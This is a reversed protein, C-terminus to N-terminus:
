MVVKTAQGDVKVILVGAPLSHFDGRNMDLADLLRGDVAYIEAKVDTLAQIGHNTIKIKRTTSTDQIEDVGSFDSEQIGWFNKWYPANEYASKSGIPVNLTASLYVGTPFDCELVPPEALKCNIVKIKELKTPDLTPSLSYTKYINNKIYRDNGYLKYDSWTKIIPEPAAFPNYPVEGITLTELTHNTVYLSNIYSEKNVRYSVIMGDPAVTGEIDEIEEPALERNLSVETLNNICFPSLYICAWTYPNAEAEEESPYDGGKTITMADEVSSQFYLPTEGAEFELKSLNKCEDFVKEGILEVSGPITFSTLASCGMFAGTEITRLSSPISISALKSCDTLAYKGITEVGEQIVFTEISCDEFAYDPIRKINGPFILQKIPNYAIFARGLYEVNTPIEFSTLGCDRFAYKGIARVTNPLAINEIKRHAFAETGISDLKEPLKISLKKSSGNFAHYAIITINTASLDCEEIGEGIYPPFYTINKGISVSPCGGWADDFGSIDRNLVIKSFYRREFSGPHSVTTYEGKLFGEGESFTLKTQVAKQKDSIAFAGYGLSTVSGPITIEILSECGYFAYDDIIKVSKLELKEIMDCGNFAQKGITDTSVIVSTIERNSSFANDNVKVVKLERGNLNITSPITLTKMEEKAGSVACTMDPLSVIDYYIGDVEFDYASMPLFSLLVAAIMAIRKINQKM